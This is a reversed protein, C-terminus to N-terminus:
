ERRAGPVIRTLENEHPLLLDYLNRDRMTLRSFDKAHVDDSLHPAEPAGAPHASVRVVCWRIARRM